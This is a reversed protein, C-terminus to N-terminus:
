SSGRPRAAPCARRSRAWWRSRRCAWAVLDRAGVDGALEALAHCLDRWAEQFLPQDLDGVEDAVVQALDQVRQRPAVRCDGLAHDLGVVLDIAEAQREVAVGLDQEDAVDHGARSMASTRADVRM